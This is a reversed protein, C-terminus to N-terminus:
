KYHEDGEVLIKKKEKAQIIKIKKAVSKKLSKLKEESLNCKIGSLEKVSNSHFSDICFICKQEEVIKQNLESLKKIKSNQELLVGSFLSIFFLFVAFCMLAEICLMGKKNLKM